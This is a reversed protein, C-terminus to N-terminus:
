NILKEYQDLERESIAAGSLKLKWLVATLLESRASKSKTLYGDLLGLEVCRAVIETSRLIVIDKIKEQFEHLAEDNFEVPMHLRSELVTQIAHPDDVLNRTIREDVIVADAKLIIAAALSEMEGLDVIHVPQGQAIFISNAEQLLSMGLETIKKDVVVTLTKENVKQLIQMAEFAFRRTQIPHDIVEDKVKSVISFTHNGRSKLAPLLWLVNSMTMSILPGSDFIITSM